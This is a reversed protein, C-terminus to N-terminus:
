VLLLREREAEAEALGADVEQRMDALRRGVESLQRQLGHVRESAQTIRERVAWDSFINDFWIDLARTMSTIGIDGVADVGVDALESGLRSLAADARRMLGAARDLKDHKVMSSVMGGGFFTDYTSWASASGLHQATQELVDAAERGADDAEVLQVDRARLEGVRDALETLRAAREAISAKKKQEDGKSM